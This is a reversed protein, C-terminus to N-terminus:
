RCDILGPVTVYGRPPDASGVFIACEAPARRAVASFGDATAEPIDIRVGPPETFGSGGDGDGRLHYLEDTYTGTDAHYRQEARFLARLADRLTQERQSEPSVSPDRESVAGATGVTPGGSGFSVGCGATSVLLAIVLSRRSGKM